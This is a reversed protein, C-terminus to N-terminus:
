VHFCVINQLIGEEEVIHGRLVALYEKTVRHEAVAATLKGTIQKKRSFVMLGGVNRDLRHVGAIFDPKGAERYQAALLRPM